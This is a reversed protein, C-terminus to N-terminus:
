GRDLESVPGSGTLHQLRRAEVILRKKTTGRPTCTVLFLKEGDRSQKFVEVNSAEVIRSGVVRYVYREGLFWVVVEDGKELEDLRYFVANFRGINALIDTSHAFLTIGGGMGPLLTGKAHAIGEKLAKEYEKKNSTDVNVKVKSLAGLKPIDITFYTAPTVKTQDDANIRLLDSFTIQSLKLEKLKQRADERGIILPLIGTTVIVLFSGLVLGKGWVFLIDRIKDRKKPCQYIIGSSPLM